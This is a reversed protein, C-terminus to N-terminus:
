ESESLMKELPFNAATYHPSSGRSGAIPNAGVSSTPSNRLEGMEGPAEGSLKLAADWSNTRSRPNSLGDSTSFTNSRTSPRSTVVSMVERSGLSEITPMRHITRGLVSIRVDRAAPDSEPDRQVLALAEDTERSVQEVLARFHAAFSNLETDPIPAQAAADDYQASLPSNGSVAVYAGPLRRIEAGYRDNGSLDEEESSNPSDPDGDSLRLPSSASSLVAQRNPSASLDLTVIRLRSSRLTRHTNDGSLREHSSQSETTAPPSQPSISVPGTSSSVTMARSSRSSATTGVTSPSSICSPPRFCKRPRRLPQRTLYYKHTTLHYAALIAFTFVLRCIAGALWFGWAIGADCQDGIGSWVVDIDWHCRGRLSIISDSSDRWLFVLVFNAVALGLLLTSSSYYLLEKLLIHLSHPKLYHGLHPATASIIVSAFICGLSLASSSGFVLSIAQRVRYRHLAAAVYYRVTNYGAWGGIVVLLTRKAWRLRRLRRRVSREWHSRVEQPTVPDGRLSLGSNFSDRPGHDPHNPQRSLLDLYASSGSSRQILPETPHSHESTATQFTVSSVSSPQREHTNRRDLSRQALAPPVSPESAFLANHLYLAAM